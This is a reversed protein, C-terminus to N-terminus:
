RRLKRRADRTGRFAYDCREQAPWVPGKSGGDDDGTAENPANPANPKPDRESFAAEGGDDGM